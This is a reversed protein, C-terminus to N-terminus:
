MSHKRSLVPQNNEAAEKKEEVVNSKSESTLTASMEDRLAQEIIRSKRSNFKKVPPAEAPGEAIPLKQKEQISAAPLQANVLVQKVDPLLSLRRSSSRSVMSPTAPGREKKRGTASKV